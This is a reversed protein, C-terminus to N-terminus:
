PKKGSGKSEYCGWSWAHDPDSPHAQVTKDNNMWQCAATMNVPHGDTVNFQDTGNFCAWNGYAAQPGQIYGKRYGVNSYGLSNCYGLLDLGSINSKLAPNTFNGATTLLPTMDAPAPTPATPGADCAAAVALLTLALIRASRIM